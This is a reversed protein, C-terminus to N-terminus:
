FNNQFKTYEYEKYEEHMMYVVQTRMTNTVTGAVIDNKLIEEAKSKIWLTSPM